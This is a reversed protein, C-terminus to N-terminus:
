KGNVWLKAKIIKGSKHSLSSYKKEIEKQETASVNPLLLARWKMLQNQFTESVSERILNKLKNESITINM